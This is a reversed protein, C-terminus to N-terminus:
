DALVTVSGTKTRAFREPRYMDEVKAPPLTYRGPATARVMYAMTMVRKDLDSSGSLKYAAIFRDNRFETHSPKLGTPLWDYRDTEASSILRPNEIEFGAPLHDVVLIQGAKPTTQVAQLVVLLRTNRKIKDLSALERGDLTYFKRELSFGQAAAQPATLPAGQLTMVVRVPDPGQNGLKFGDTGLKTLEDESLTYTLSGKHPTGNVDLAYGQAEEMLANAALLMWSKEQTSTFSNGAQTDVAREIDGLSLDDIRSESILTLAAAQDRLLSGFSDGHYSNDDQDKKDKAALKQRLGALATEFTRKARPRDGYLALAAAIQAQALPTAFNDIKVDAYYRLDGIRARKNRALVYLAYAIDEGGKKFASAYGLSNSLQDLAQEFAIKPVKYGKERARTLFDTVYATLWLDNGGPSWLGFSGDSDQRSLLRAIAKEVRAKITEEGKGGKIGAQEAMASLYLFPLTRSTIQESCRYPYQDLATLMLPIDGMLKPGVALTLKGTGPELGTFIDRSLTLSGAPALKHVSRSTIAPFPAKVPVEFSRAVKIKGKPGTLTVTIQALGTKLARIPIMLSRRQGKALRLQYTQHAAPKALLHPSEVQLKYTGAPGEVNDFSLHLNSRDGRALFRPTTGAIVVPDRVFVDAVGHGTKSRSWAVAMVRVTGTFAPIDFRLTATGDAAVKILGSFRALPKEVPPSGSVELGGDGGSRIKGAVGQMGDILRGYLDRIEMGLKTKGYFRDEPAPPKFRTLSLIGADVAAAVVYAEEGPQLGTIRLPIDLAEMPRIRDPAELALDLTRAKRDVSLWEIGIARAPMRRAKIQMPRYLTALVYAGPGWNEGVKLAISNGGKQIDVMRSEILRNNMVAIHLRGPYRANVRLQATEGSAYGEKDLATELIDPTDAESSASYWGASFNLRAYPGNDDDTFIELRYRGWEVPIALRAPKDARLDLRGDRIRKTNTITEYRWRGEYRYWQYRREVRSLEWRLNQLRAPKGDRGMAMIEFAATEGEGVTGNAFLPKIGILPQAPLLQLTTKREIGRGSPELLRVAVEAILPQTTRPLKPLSIALKAKGSKDTRPLAELTQRIPSFDEDADGFQFGKFGDIGHPKAKILLEGEVKLDSAPAGYLYEGELAITTPRTARVKQQEPKLVMKLRDPVFDEVLFRVSALAEGNQDTYAAVQWTGTMATPLLDVSLTRGGLGQDKTVFRRYEVGDPRTLVITLPLGTVAQAKDDRLLATIHVTAGPRYIGRETYLFANVPGAPKGGGVGRDSLDFGPDKLNLFAYGAQPDAAIILAPAMGGTGRALGPAFQAYGEANTTTEGLVENNRALLKVKVGSLPSATELSRAFTHIGDDGRYVTLGIDSVIFWQTAMPYWSEDESDNSKATMVYVGAELSKLVQGIPFATVVEQNLKRKIQLKGSWVKQGKRNKIKNADWSDIQRGFNRGLVTDVLNRGGIRYITIDAESVNVSTLPIGAQGTKPLVYSRGSFRISASRDRVYLNLTATKHLSEFKDSPLGSRVTLRYRRGHKFGDICLEQGKVTVAAPDQNDIKIFKALDAGRKPLQESFRVCVQPTASDAHIEHDIIRFGKRAHLDDYLRAVKANKAWKLSARYAALALRWKQQQEYAQGLLALADAKDQRTKAAQYALYAAPGANSTKMWDPRSKHILTAPDSHQPVKVTLLTAALKLWSQARARRAQTAKAYAHLAADPNSALLKDGKQLWRRSSLKGPKATERLQSKLVLASEIVAKTFINASNAWGPSPWLPVLFAAILLILRPLPFM